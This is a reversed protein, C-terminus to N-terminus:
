SSLLMVMDFQPLSIKYMFDSSKYMCRFCMGNDTTWRDMWGDIEDMRGDTRRDTRRDTWGDMCENMWWVHMSQGGCM